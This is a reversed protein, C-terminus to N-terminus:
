AHVVRDLVASVQQALRDYRYGAIVSSDPVVPDQGALRSEILRSLTQTLGELDDPRLVWGARSSEILDQVGGPYAVALIPRGVRLYEYLKGPISARSTYEQGYFLMLADAAAMSRLAKTHPIFKHLVVVDKLPERRTLEEVDSDPFGVIHFRLKNKLQPDRELLAAVARFFQGSFGPYITGFHALNIFRPDFVGEGDPTLGRFDDEDFGNHIVALKERSVGFHSELEDAHRKTVTVVARSQNLMVRHLWANRRPASGQHINSREHEPLIWPDRFEMVWPVGGFMSLFLGVPHAARPPHTTYVADFRQALNLQMARSIAFPIWGATEDPFYLCSRVMRAVSRLMRNMPSPDSATKVAETSGATEAPQLAGASRAAQLASNEWANLLIERTREIRVSEPVRSLLGADSVANRPPHITLVTPLWGWQPLYKTFATPRYVGSTRRPPFDYAVLLVRKKRASGSPFSPSAVGLSDEAPGVLESQVTVSM